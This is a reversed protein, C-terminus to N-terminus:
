GGGKTQISLNKILALNTFITLSGFSLIRDINSRKFKGPSGVTIFRSVSFINDVHHLTRLPLLGLM